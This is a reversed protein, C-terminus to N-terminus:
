AMVIYIGALYIWLISGSITNCNGCTAQYTGTLSWHESVTNIMM